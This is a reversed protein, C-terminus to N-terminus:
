KDSLEKWVNGRHYQKSNRYGSPLSNIIQHSSCDASAIINYIKWKNIINYMKDVKLYTSYM